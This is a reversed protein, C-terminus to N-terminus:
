WTLSRNWIFPSFIRENAREWSGPFIVLLFVPNYRTDINIEHGYGVIGGGSRFRVASDQCLVTQAQLFSITSLFSLKLFLSRM